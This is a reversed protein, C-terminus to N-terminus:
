EKARKRQSKIITKLTINLKKRKKHTYRNYIKSKNNGHCKYIALWSHTLSHTFNSMQTWSKTVGHVTAQWAEMWPIKWALVSSHTAKEKEM